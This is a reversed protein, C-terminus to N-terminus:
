VVEVLKWHPRLPRLPRARDRHPSIETVSQHVYVCSLLALSRARCPLPMSEMSSLLALLLVVVSSVRSFRISRISVLSSSRYFRRKPCACRAHGLIRERVMCNAPHRLEVIGARARRLNRADCGVAFASIRWRVCATRCHWGTILTRQLSWPENAHGAALSAVPGAIAASSWANRENGHGHRWM